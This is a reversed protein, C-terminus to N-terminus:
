IRVVFISPTPKVPDDGKTVYSHQVSRPEMIGFIEKLFSVGYVCSRTDGNEIVKYSDCEPLVPLQYFIVWKRTARFLNDIKEFMNDCDLFDGQVIILDYSERHLRMKEYSINRFTAFLEKKKANEINEPDVDVGVYEINDTQMIQMMEFLYGDKCNIDLVRDGEKLIGDLFSSLVKFHPLIIGKKLLSIDSQM